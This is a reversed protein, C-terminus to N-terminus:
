PKGPRVQWPRGCLSLLVNQEAQSARHSNGGMRQVYDCQMKHTHRYLEITRTYLYYLYISKIYILTNIIQFPNFLTVRGLMERFSFVLWWSSISDRSLNLIFAAGICFWFWRHMLSCELVERCKQMPCAREVKWSWSARFSDCVIVFELLSDSGRRTDYQLEARESDTFYTKPVQHWQALARFSDLHM